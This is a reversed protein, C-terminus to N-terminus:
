ATSCWCLRPTGNLEELVDDVFQPLQSAEVLIVV